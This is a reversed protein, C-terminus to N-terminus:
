RRWCEPPLRQVGAASVVIQLPTCSVGGQRDQTQSGTATATATFSTAAADNDRAMTVVYSDVNFVLELDDELDEAYEPNNARWKEQELTIRLLAEKADARKAKRIYDQYSPYAVAALIAVVVVVIMLEILTFGQSRRLNAV